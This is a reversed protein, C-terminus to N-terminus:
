EKIKIKYGLEQEIQSKTMERELVEIKFAYPQNFNATIDTKFTVLSIGMNDAACGSTSEICDITLSMKPIHVKCQWVGDTIGTYDLYPIGNEVFVKVDTPIIRKDLIVDYNM